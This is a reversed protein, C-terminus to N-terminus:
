RAIKKHEKKFEQQKSKETEAARCLVMTIELPSMDVKLHSSYDSVNRIGIQNEVAVSIDFMDLSDLGLDTETADPRSGNLEIIKAEVIDYIRNINITFKM